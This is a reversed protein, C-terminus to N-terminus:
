PKKPRLPYIARKGDRRPELIEFFTLKIQKRRGTPLRIFAGGDDILRDIRCLGFQEHDIYDGARPTPAAPDDSPPRSTRAPHTPKTRAAEGGSTTPEERSASAAAVMGWSVPGPASLPAQVPPRAAPAVAAGLREAQALYPDPPPETAPPAGDTLPM